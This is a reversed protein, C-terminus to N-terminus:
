PMGKNMSLVSYKMCAYKLLSFPNNGTNVTISSGTEEVQLRYWKSAWDQKMKVWLWLFAHWNKACNAKDFSNLWFRCSIAIQLLTQFLSIERFESLHSQRFKNSPLIVFPCISHPYPFGVPHRKTNKIERRITVWPTCPELEDESEESGYCKDEDSGLDVVIELIENGSFVLARKACSIDCRQM